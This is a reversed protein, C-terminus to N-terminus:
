SHPCLEYYGAHMGRFAAANEVVFAAEKEDADHLVDRFTERSIVTFFLSSKSRLPHNVKVSLKPYSKWM